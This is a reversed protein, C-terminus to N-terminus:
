KVEFEVTRDEQGNLYVVVKYKGPAFDSSSTLAFEGSTNLPDLNVQNELLLQNKANPTDVAYWKVGLPTGGLVNEVDVVIYISHDGPKFMTTPNAIKGANVATGMTTATIRPPTNACANLLLAIGLGILLARLLKM